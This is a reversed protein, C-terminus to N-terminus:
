ILKSWSSKFLGKDNMENPYLLESHSSTQVYKYVILDRKATQICSRKSKLRLCM